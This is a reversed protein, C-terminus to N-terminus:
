IELAYSTVDAIAFVRSPRDLRFERRRRSTANFRANFSIDIRLEVERSPRIV